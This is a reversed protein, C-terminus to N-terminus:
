RVSLSSCTDSYRLRRFVRDTFGKETRIVAFPVTQVCARTRCPDLREKRGNMGIGVM